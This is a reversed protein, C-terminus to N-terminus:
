DLALSRARAAAPASRAARLRLSPASERVCFQRAGAGLHRPVREAKLGHLPCRHRHTRPLRGPDDRRAPRARRPQAPARQDPQLGPGVPRAPRRRRRPAAEASAVHPSSLLSAASPVPCRTAPSNPLEALVTSSPRGVERAPRARHRPRGRRSRIREVLLRPSRQRALSLPQSAEPRPAASSKAQTQHAPSPRPSSSPARPQCVPPSSPGQARAVAASTTPKCRRRVLGRM